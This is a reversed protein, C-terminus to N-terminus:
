IAHKGSHKHLNTQGESLNQISRFESRITNWREPYREFLELIRLGHKKISDTIAANTIPPSCHAGIHKGIIKEGALLCARAADEYRDLLEITVAYRDFPLSRKETISEVNATQTEEPLIFDTKGIKLIDAQRLQTNIAVEASTRLSKELRDLDGRYEYIAEYVAEEMVIQIGMKKGIQDLIGRVFERIHNRYFQDRRELERQSQEYKASLAHRNELIGSYISRNKKHEEILGYLTHAMMEQIILKQDQTFANRTKQIGFHNMKKDLYIFILDNLHDQINRVPVMLINRQDEDDFSLQIKREKDLSQEFPLEDTQYWGPTRKEKRWRAVNMLASENLALPLSAGQGDTRMALVQRRDPDYFFYLVRDVGKIMGPIFEAAYMLDHKIFSLQM